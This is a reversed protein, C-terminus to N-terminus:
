TTRGVHFMQQEPRAIAAPRSARSGVGVAFGRWWEDGLQVREISLLPLREM